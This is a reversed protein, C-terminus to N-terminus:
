VVKVIISVIIVCFVANYPACYISSSNALVGCRWKFTGEGLDPGIETLSKDLPNFKVVRRADCPIGYFFGNKGDVFTSWKDDGEIEDGILTTLSPLRM